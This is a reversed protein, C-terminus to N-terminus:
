RPPRKSMGMMSLLGLVYPPNMLGEASSHSTPFPIALMVATYYTVVDSWVSCAKERARDAVVAFGEGM